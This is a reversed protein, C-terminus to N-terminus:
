DTCFQKRNSSQQKYVNFTRAGTQSIVSHPSFQLLSSSPRILSSTLRAAKFRRSLFHSMVFYFKDIILKVIFVNLKTNDRSGNIMIPVVKSM